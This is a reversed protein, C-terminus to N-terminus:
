KLTSIYQTLQAATEAGINGMLQEMFTKEAEYVRTNPEEIVSRAVYGVDGLEDILGNQTAEDGLWVLGTFTNENEQLRDGRGQRVAEIFQQHTRELIHEKFFARGSEDKPSFPDIFAKHDGAHMSRNEIGLKEMLGTVGFTDMRVGISGVISGKNAYIRDAAVAIYYCGSACIDEVVVYVPKNHKQKLRTIEDNILASQVPSGGPSNARIVVAKSAESRFAERLLPNFVQASNLGDPMIAGNLNVIATHTKGLAVDEAPSFQRAFMVLTFLIYAIVALKLLNTWRRSWREQKIFTEAALALRNLGDSQQNKTPKDQEDWM